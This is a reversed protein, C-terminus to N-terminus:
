VGIAWRVLEQHIAARVDREGSFDAAAHITHDHMVPTVDGGLLLGCLPVWASRMVSDCANFWALGEARDGGSAIWKRASEIVLADNRQLFPGGALTSSREAREYAVRAAAVSARACAEPGWAALRKAWSRIPPMSCIDTRWYHRGDEEYHGAGHCPCREKLGLVFCAVPDHCYAALEINKRSILDSRLRAALLDATMGELRAGRELRALREDSM